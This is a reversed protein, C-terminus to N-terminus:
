RAAVAPVSAEPQETRGLHRLHVARQRQARDASDTMSALYQLPGINRTLSWALIGLPLGVVGALGLPTTSGGTRRVARRVLWASMVANAVPLLALAPWGLPWAALVLVWSPVPGLLFCGASRYLSALRQLEFRVPQRRREEALLGHWQLVDIMGSFWYRKQATVATATTPHETDEMVPVVFVPADRLSLRFGLELDECPTDTSFGGLDLAVDLRMAVGHGKLHYSHGLPGRRRPASNRRHLDYEFGLAWRAQYYAAGVAYWKGAGHMEDVNQLSMFNSQVVQPLGRALLTDGLAQVSDLAATSDGNYAVVYEHTPDAGGSAEHVARMGTNFAAAMSPVASHDVVVRAGDLGDCLAEAVTHTCVGTAADPTEHVSTVITIDARYRSVEISRRLSGITGPLADVEQFAPVVYHVVLTDRATADEAERAVALDRVEDRDQRLRAPMRWMRYWFAGNRLLLGVTCAAVVATLTWSVPAPLTM